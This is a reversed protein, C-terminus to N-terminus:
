AQGRRARVQSIVMQLEHAGLRARPFRTVLDQLETLALRSLENLTQSFVSALRSITEDRHVSGSYVFDVKLQGGSVLSIVELVHRRLGRPDRATDSELRGSAFASSRALVHDLQGLYNFSVEAEALAAMQEHIAPDACTYRLLGYGIGRNPVARLRQEVQRLLSLPDPDISSLWVPFRTTFWGVTRSIDVGAVVEERGHGELEILVSGEGSWESLARALAAVLVQDLAVGLAAPAKQLLARTQEEGFTVTHTRASAVDNRGGDVDRPLPPHRAPIKLWHELEAKLAASQAYESLAGSWTRFSTTKPAFCIMSSESLQAYATKIDEVLTRWSVGDVALHHIAVLLEPAGNPVAFFVMAAVKGEEIQLSAQVDATTQHIFSAQQDASVNPVEVVTFLPSVEEISGNRQEWATSTRRFSLRLADHHRLLADWIEGFVEARAEEPLRFSLSMNWHSPRELRQEFFWAQIPTLAIPGTVMGQEAHLDVNGVITSALAAITQHQFMQKPTVRIGERAAKAIIQISLISDGGLEFFNDEIGVTELRLAEAWIRALVAETPTRPVVTAQRAPTSREGPSPLARRDVKGNPTLPLAELVLVANPVMYEPLTRQLASKLEGVDLSRGYVPVVYAVLKRDGPTDERVAVFTQDVHPLQALAAEIEGLEVRFGRIKVQDDLRGLFELNGDVHRRVLDGTRYLRAGPSGFPDPVFREATLDGRGVYGRAVCSGGIFLEGPVGIPLPQMGRGLVHMTTNALPQGLPVNSSRHPLAVADLECTLVGVTTETPGYHNLIRSTQPLQEKVRNVWEWSSAEGGLVLCVRPLARKMQASTMLARLHSPVIKLCDIRHRDAYLAFAEPDAAVSESILHLTGGSALAPFIATNGLDAALTSVTAYSSQVPLSLRASVADVYNCLQRHEVGVGKPRGTSGSTFLVYALNAEHLEVQLDADPRADLERRQADLAIATIKPSTLKGSLAQHTLVVTIAADDIISALREKPLAPDLPVYAGGAKLIGLVAIILDASRELCIGVRVDPGVGKARLHAAVQNARRNLDGASLVESDAVLATAHPASRAHAEFRRPILLSGRPPAVTQNSAALQRQERSSLVSLTEVANDPRQVCAELLALFNEALREVTSRDFLDTNYKFILRLGDGQEWVWLTLDFQGVLYRLPVSELDLGGLKLHGGAKEEIVAAIGGDRLRQAKMFMYLVQFVPSRSPDRPPQLREVLVPFPLGQHDLAWLTKERAARLVQRFTMSPTLRSRIVLPNALYGVLGELEADDRGTTPSGIVAELQGTYRWLLVQFAGLVTVHQTASEAQGLERLRRALAGDVDLSVWDGNYSQVPPRPRDTPLVLTPLEGELERSWDRWLQEGKLGAVQELQAQTYRLYGTSLAPLQPARGACCAEHLQVSSM